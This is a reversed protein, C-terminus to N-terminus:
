LVDKLFLYFFQPMYFPTQLTFSDSGHFSPCKNASGATRWYGLIILHHVFSALSNAKSAAIL